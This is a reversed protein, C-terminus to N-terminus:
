IYFLQPTALYAYLCRHIHMQPNSLKMVLAKHVFNITVQPQFLLIFRVIYNHGIFWFSFEM